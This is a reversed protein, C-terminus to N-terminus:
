DAAHTTEKHPQRQARRWKDVEERSIMTRHGRKFKTLVHDGLLRYLTSRSMPGYILAQDITTLRNGRGRTKRM